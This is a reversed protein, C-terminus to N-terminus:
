NFLLNRYRGMKNKLRFVAKSHIQSIRSESVGMIKSIEKLTLEEYYYLTIVRQEKEKLGSIADALMEKTEKRDLEAEPTMDSRNGSEDSFAAEHGQEIFDEYSILSAVSSNRIMEDLEDAGVNLREALEADTPPRGTKNELENFAKELQKNKQRLTRPVWDWKRIDDIIAGKIRISAYTEFKIGKKPDFKDVADILGFIGSSIMDEYDVHQGTFVILRGAIYKVLGAYKIILREKLAPDNTGIFDGWLRDISDMSNTM